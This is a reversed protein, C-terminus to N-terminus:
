LNQPALERRARHEGLGRQSGREAHGLRRDPVRQKRQLLLTQELQAGASRLSNALSGGLFAVAFLGFVNLAVTYRAVSAPPLAVSAAALWPDNRLGSVALYQAMVLGGYLLSSLTAVLLGGRRFQMTSAAIVPEVPIIQQVCDAPQGIRRDGHRPEEERTM